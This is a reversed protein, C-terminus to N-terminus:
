GTISSQEQSFSGTEEIFAPYLPTRRHTGTNLHHVDALTGGFRIKLFIDAEDTAEGLEGQTGNRVELLTIPKNYAQV